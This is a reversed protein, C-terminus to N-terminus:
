GQLRGMLARPQKASVRAASGKRALARFLVSPPGSARPGPAAGAASPVAAQLRRGAREAPPLWHAQLQRGARGQQQM